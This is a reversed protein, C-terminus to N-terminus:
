LRLEQARLDLLAAEGHVRRVVVGRAAASNAEVERVGFRDRALKRGALEEVVVARAASQAHAWMKVGRVFLELREEVREVFDTDREPACSVGSFCRCVSARVPRSKRRERNESIEKSGKGVM